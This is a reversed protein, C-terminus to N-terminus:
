ALRRGGLGALAEPMPRAERAGTQGAMGALVPGSWDRIVRRAIRWGADTRRYIDEYWGLVTLPYPAAGQRVMVAVYSRGRVAGGEADIVLNSVHHQRGATTPLDRLFAAFRRLEDAGKWQYPADFADWLLEGDATFCRAFADADGTDLAWAYRHVVDAILGHDGPQLPSQKNNEM